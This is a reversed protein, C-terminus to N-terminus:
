KQPEKPTKNPSPLRNIWIVIGVVGLVFILLPIGNLVGLLHFFMFRGSSRLLAMAFACSVLM